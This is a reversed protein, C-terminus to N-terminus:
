LGNHLEKKPKLKIKKKKKDGAEIIKKADPPLKDLSAQKKEEVEPTIPKEKEKSKLHKMLKAYTDM